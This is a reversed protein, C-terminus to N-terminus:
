VPAMAMGSRSNQSRGAGGGRGARKWFLEFRMDTFTENNREFTSASKGGEQFVNRERRAWCIMILRFRSRVPSGARDDLRSTSLSFRFSTKRHLILMVVSHICGAGVDQIICVCRGNKPRSEQVLCVGSCMPCFRNSTVM